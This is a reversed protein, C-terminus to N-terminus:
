SKSQAPGTTSNFSHVDSSTDHTIDRSVPHQTTVSEEITKGEQSLNPTEVPDSSLPVSVGSRKSSLDLREIMRAVGAIGASMERQVGRGIEKVTTNRALLKETFGRTSKTISEKYRASAASIKAKVSESFALFESSSSRQPGDSSPQGFIRHNVRGDKTEATDSTVNVSSPLVSSTESEITSAPAGTTALGAELGYCINIGNEFPVSPFVEASDLGPTTQRRRRNVRRARSTSGAFHQLIQEEQDSGYVYSADQFVVGYSLNDEASPNWFNLSGYSVHDERVVRINSRARMSREIKAAALLEQSTPDKLELLQCCIPCETSRQSWELICQLHYEHKCNTVTSPDHSNFPEFCISCGDEFCDDAVAVAVANDTTTIIMPMTITSPTESSLITDTSM